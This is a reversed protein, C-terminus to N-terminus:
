ERAEVQAFDDGALQIHRVDEPIGRVQATIEAFSMRLGFEGADVLLYGCRHLGMLMLRGRRRNQVKISPWQACPMAYVANTDTNGCIACSRPLLPAKTACIDMDTAASPAIPPDRALPQIKSFAPVRIDSM